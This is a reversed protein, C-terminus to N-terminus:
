MSPNSAQHLPSKRPQTNRATTIHDLHTSTTTKGDAALNALLSLTHQRLATKNTNTYANHSRIHTNINDDNDIVASIQPKFDFSEHASKQKLDASKSVGNVGGGVSYVGVCCQLVCCSHCVRRHPEAGIGCLLGSACWWVVRVGLPLVM